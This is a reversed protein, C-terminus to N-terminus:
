LRRKLVKGIKELGVGGRKGFGDLREKGVRRVRRVCVLRGREGSSDLGERVFREESGM